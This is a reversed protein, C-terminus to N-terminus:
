KQILNKLENVTHELKEIKNNQERIAEILLPVIKEYNVQLQDHAGVRVIEPVVAQVEQAIVGIDHGTYGSPNEIWDFEVGRLQIVKDIANQIQIVNEKYKKDSSVYSIVDNDAIIDGKARITGTDLDVAAKASGASAFVIQRAKTEATTAQGHSELAYSGTGNLNWYIGEDATRAKLLWKNENNRYELFSNIHSQRVPKNVLINDINVLMNQDTGFSM